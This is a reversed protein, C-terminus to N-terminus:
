RMTSLSTNIDAVCLSREVTNGHCRRNRSRKVIDSSMVDRTILKIWLDAEMAYNQLVLYTVISWHAPINPCKPNNRFEYHKISDLLKNLDSTWNTKFNLVKPWTGSKDGCCMKVPGRILQFYELVHVNRTSMSKVYSRKQHGQQSWKVSLQRSWGQSLISNWSSLM